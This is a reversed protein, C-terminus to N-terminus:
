PPFSRVRWVGISGSTVCSDLTTGYIGSVALDGTYVLPLGEFPMLFCCKLKIDMVAGSPAKVWFLVEDGGFRSSLDRGITCVGTSSSPFSAPTGTPPTSHGVAHVHGPSSALWAVPGWGWTIDSRGLNPLAWLSLRKIQVSSLLSSFLGPGTNAVILSLLHNRTISVRDVHETLCFRFVRTFCPRVNVSALSPPCEARRSASRIETRSARQM